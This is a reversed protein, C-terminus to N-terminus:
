RQGAMMDYINGFYVADEMAAQFGDWEDLSFTLCIDNNPTRLVLREEGDPFPFSADAADLNATFTKFSRFQEESFNLLLNHQWICFTRCDPCQSIVTQGKRALVIHQCM